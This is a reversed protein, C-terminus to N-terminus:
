NFSIFFIFTVIGKYENFIYSKTTTNIIKYEICSSYLCSYRTQNKTTKGWCKGRNVPVAPAPSFRWLPIWNSTPKMRGPLCQKNANTSFLASMYEEWTLSHQHQRLHWVLVVNATRIGTFLQKQKTDHSQTLKCMSNILLQRHHINYWILYLRFEYPSYLYRLTLLVYFLILTHPKHTVHVLFHVAPCICHHEWTGAPNCAKVSM